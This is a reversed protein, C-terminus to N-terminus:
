RSTLFRKFQPTISEMLGDPMTIALNADDLWVTGESYPLLDQAEGIRACMTRIFDEFGILPCLTFAGMNAVFTMVEGDVPTQLCGEAQRLFGEHYDMLRNAIDSVAEADATASDDVEGFAGRFAPSLMFQNLQGVLDTVTGLARQAVSCYARGDHSPVGPRPQYGSAVSRLRAAVANRRLVLVSTFVAWPWAPPKDAILTALEEPSTAVRSVLGAAENPPLVRRPTPDIPRAMGEAVTRFNAPWPWPQDGDAAVRGARHVLWITGLIVAVGLLAPLWAHGVLGIVFLVVGAIVSNRQGRTVNPLM